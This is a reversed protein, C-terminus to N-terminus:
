AEAEMRRLVASFSEFEAGTAADRFQYSLQMWDRRDRLVPLLDHFALEKRLTDMEQDVLEEAPVLQDQRIKQNERARRAFDDMTLLTIGPLAKIASDMDRPVALDLLLRPKATQICDRLRQYTVTYHPSTTASIIMDAEDMFRYRDGYDVATVGSVSRDWRRSVAFVEFEGYSILNKVVKGGTEGGAGIVLVKKGSGSFGHCVSAALTAVSVSRKSLLTETKIKKACTIAAKFVTNLEFDTYGRDQSFQFARKMQGLIEDEGLAMSDLGAVVYFLHRVARQGTYILIYEAGKRTGSAEQWHELAEYPDGTGYLECRNCTSLYVGGLRALLVAASEEPLTFRERLALDAKKYNLSLVFM